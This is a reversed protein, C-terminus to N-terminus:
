AHHHFKHNLLEKTGALNVRPTFFLSFRLLTPKPISTICLATTAFSFRVCIQVTLEPVIRGFRPFRELIRVQEILGQSLTEAYRPSEQRFSEVIRDLDRAASTLWKITAV